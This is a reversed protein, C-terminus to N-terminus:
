GSTDGDPMTFTRRGDSIAKFIEDIVSEAAEKTSYKGFTCIHGSHAVNCDYGKVRYIGDSKSKEGWIHTTLFLENDQTRIWIGM